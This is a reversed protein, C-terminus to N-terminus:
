WGLGASSFLDPTGTEEESAGGTDFIEADGILTNERDRAWALEPTSDMLRGIGEPASRLLDVDTGTLLAARGVEEEPHGDPERSVSIVTLSPRRGPRTPSVALAPLGEPTAPPLEAALSERFDAMGRLLAELEKSLPCEPSLDFYVRVGSRERRAIGAGELNALERQVCGRGTRLLGVLELLFFRRGRNLILLSLLGRRVKGFLAEDLRELEKSM